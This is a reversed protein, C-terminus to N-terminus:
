ECRLAAMPDVKSARRAPLYGAVLTVGLITAAAGAITLPDHPSLDYLQHSLLRAAAWSAPFGVLIGAIVVMSVEALIMRVIRGRQAGLAMRVGIEGTRRTVAYGITISAWAPM